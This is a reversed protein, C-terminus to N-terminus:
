VAARTPEPAAGATRHGPLLFRFSLGLADSHIELAAGLNDALSRIVKFGVGGEADPDFGEPLGVGDDAVELMLRGDDLRDCSITITVPIGTPHAHKLANVIIENVLLALAQAQRADILSDDALRHVVTLRGELSLGSILSACTEVICKRVYTCEGDSQALARNLEGLSVLRGMIVQLVSLMDDRSILPPGKALKAARVRVASAILALQNAFRHNAEERQLALRTRTAALDIPEAM